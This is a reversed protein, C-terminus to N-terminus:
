GSFLEVWDPRGALLRGCTNCTQKYGNVNERYVPTDIDTACAPCHVVFFLRGPALYGIPEPM